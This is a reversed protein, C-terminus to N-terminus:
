VIKTVQFNMVLLYSFCIENVYEIKLYYVKLEKLRFPIYALGKKFNSFLNTKSRNCLFSM